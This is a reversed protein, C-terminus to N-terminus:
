DEENNHFWAALTRTTFEMPDDDYLVVAYIEPSHNDNLSVVAAGRGDRWDVVREGARFYHLDGPEESGSAQHQMVIMRATELHDAEFLRRLTEVESCSMSAWTSEMMDSGLAGAADAVHQQLPLWREAMRELLAVAKGNLYPGAGHEARDQAWRQYDDVLEQPDSSV